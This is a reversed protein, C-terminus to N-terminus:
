LFFLKHSEENLTHDSNKKLSFMFRSIYDELSGDEKQQIRFIDDGKRGIKCYEKYKELFKTQMTAWTHVVGRGLIM